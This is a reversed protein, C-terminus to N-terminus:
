PNPQQMRRRGLWWFLGALAVVALFSYSEFGTGQAHAGGWAYLLASPGYGVASYLLMKGPKMPSCGALISVTESLLPVPRSLIVALARHRMFFASGAELERETVVKSIWSKGSRGMWYGAMASATGGVLSLATGAAVGFLAGNAMMLLSGPVPLLIDSALLCLSVAAALWGATELLYSPDQLLPIGLGEVLGFAALFFLCLFLAFLFYRKMM